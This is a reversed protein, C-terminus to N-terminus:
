ASADSYGGAIEPQLGEALRGLVVVWRGRCNGEEPM